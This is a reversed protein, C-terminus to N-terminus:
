WQCGLWWGVRWPRWEVQHNKLLGPIWNFHCGDCKLTWTKAVGLHSLVFSQHHKVPFTLTVGGFVLMDGSFWHNSSTNGNFKRNFYDRKLLCTLKWPSYTRQKLMNGKSADPNKEFFWCSKIRIWSGLPVVSDLFIIWALLRPTKKGMYGGTFSWM